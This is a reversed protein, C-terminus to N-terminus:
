SGAKRLIVAKAFFLMLLEERHKPKNKLTLCKDPVCNWYTEM